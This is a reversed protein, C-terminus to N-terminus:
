LEVLDVALSIPNLAINAAFEIRLIILLFMHLLMILRWTAMTILFEFLFSYEIVLFSTILFIISFTFETVDGLFCAVNCFM